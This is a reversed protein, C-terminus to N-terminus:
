PTREYTMGYHVVRFAPGQIYNGKSIYPRRIFNTESVDIANDGDNSTAHFDRRTRAQLSLRLIDQHIHMSLKSYSM